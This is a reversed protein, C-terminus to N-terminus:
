KLGLKARIYDWFKVTAILNTQLLSIQKTLGKIQDEYKAKQKLLEEEAIMSRFTQDNDVIKEITEKPNVYENVKAEIENDSTSKKMALLTDTVFQKVTTILQDPQAQDNLLLLQNITGSYGNDRIRPKPYYGWHLHPATSFGTNDAIGIKVGESLTDGINVVIEKMHALISGESNNEIKIYNGYGDQDYGIEIVVGMHPSYVDAETSKNGSTDFLRYDIGNHGKLGFRAYIDPNIGWQQTIYVKKVPHIM